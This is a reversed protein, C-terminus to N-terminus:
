YCRSMVQAKQNQMAQSNIKTNSAQLRSLEEAQCRCIASGDKGQRIVMQAYANAKLNEMCSAYEAQYATDQKYCRPAWDTEYFDSDYYSPQNYYHESVMRNARRYSRYENAKCECDYVKSSSQSRCQSLVAQVEQEIQSDSLKKKFRNMCLENQKTCYNSQSVSICKMAAVNCEAESNATSFEGEVTTMQHIQKPKYIPRDKDPPSKPVQLARTIEMLVRPSPLGSVPLGSDQEFQKIAQSTNQGMVGDPPGPDYGLSQLQQQIRKIQYPALSNGAAPTEIQM